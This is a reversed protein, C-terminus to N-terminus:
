HRGRGCMGVRAIVGEQGRQLSLADVERRRLGRYFELNAYQGVGPSHDMLSIMRVRKHDAVPDFLPLM